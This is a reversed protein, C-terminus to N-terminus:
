SRKNKKLTITIGGIGIILMISAQVLTKYSIEQGSFISVYLFYIGLIILVAYVGIMIKRSISNSTQTDASLFRDYLLLGTMAVLGL